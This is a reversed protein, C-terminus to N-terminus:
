EEEGLEIARQREAKALKKREAASTRYQVGQEGPGHKFAHWNAELRAVTDEVSWGREEAIVRVIASM